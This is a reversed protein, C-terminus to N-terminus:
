MDDVDGIELDAGDSGVDGECGATVTLTAAFVALVAVALLRRLYHKNM